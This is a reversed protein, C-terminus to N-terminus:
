TDIDAQRVVEETLGEDRKLLRRIRQAKDLSVKRTNLGRKYHDRITGWYAQEGCLEALQGPTVERGKGAEAV